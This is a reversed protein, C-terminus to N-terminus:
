QIQKLKDMADKKLELELDKNNVMDSFIKQSHRNQMFDYLGLILAFFVLFGTEEWTYNNQNSIDVKTNVKDSYFSIRYSYFFLGIGTITFLKYKYFSSVKFILDLAYKLYPWSSKTLESLKKYKAM